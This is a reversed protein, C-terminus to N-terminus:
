EDEDQEPNLADFRRRRYCLPLLLMARFNEAFVLLLFYCLSM